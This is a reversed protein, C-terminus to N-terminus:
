FTLTSLIVDIKAMEKADALIQRVCTIPDNIIKQVTKLGNHLTSEAGIEDEKKMQHMVSVAWAKLKPALSKITENKFKTFPSLANVKVIQHFEADISESLMARIVFEGQENTLQTIPKIESLKM